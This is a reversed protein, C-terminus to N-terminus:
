CAACITHADESDCSLDLVVVENQGRQLWSGPVYLTQQPGAQTWFRGLHHGNVWAHGRGFNRTQMYTASPQKPSDDDVDFGGRYLRVGIMAITAVHWSRSNSSQACWLVFGTSRLLSAQVNIGTTSACRHFTPGGAVSSRRAFTGLPATVDNDTQKREHSSAESLVTDASLVDTALPPTVALGDQRWVGGHLSDFPLRHPSRLLKHTTTAARHGDWHLVRGPQVLPMAATHWNTLVHEHTTNAALLVSGVIGKHLQVSTGNRLRGGVSFNDRGYAYTTIALEIVEEDSACRQPPLHIEDPAALWTSAVFDGDLRIHALDHAHMHLMPGHELLACPM